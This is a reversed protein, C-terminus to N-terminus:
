EEHIDFRTSPAADPQARATLRDVGALFQAVDIPKTWYDDFGADRARQVADPMANASLAVIPARLGLARLRRLLQHGDMDPLQMDVLVLGPRQRLAQEIGSHGDAAVHLTV